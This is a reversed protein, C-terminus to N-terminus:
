CHPEPSSSRKRQLEELLANTCLHGGSSCSLTLIPPPTTNVWGALRPNPDIPHRNPPPLQHWGLGVSLCSVALQGLRGLRRGALLTWM